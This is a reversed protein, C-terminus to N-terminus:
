PLRNMPTTAPGARVFNKVDNLLERLKVRRNEQRYTGSSSGKANELEARVLKLALLRYAGEIVIESNFSDRDPQRV